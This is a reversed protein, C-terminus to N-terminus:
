FIMNGSYVKTISMSNFLSFKFLM